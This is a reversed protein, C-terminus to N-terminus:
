YFIHKSQLNTQLNNPDFGNRVRKRSSKREQHSHLDRQEIGYIGGIKPEQLAKIKKLSKKQNRRWDMPNTVVITRQPTKVVRKRPRTSQNGRVSHERSKSAYNSKAREKEREVPAKTEVQKESKMNLDGTPTIKIEVKEETEFNQISRLSKQVSHSEKDNLNNKSWASIARQKLQIKKNVYKKELDCHHKKDHHHPVVGPKLILFKNDKKSSFHNSFKKKMNSENWQQKKAKRNKLQQENDYDFKSYLKRLRNIEDDYAQKKHTSRERQEQERRQKLQLTKDVRKFIMKNEYEVQDLGRPWIKKPAAETEMEEPNPRFENKISEQPVDKPKDSIFREIEEFIINSKAPDKNGLHGDQEKQVEMERRSKQIVELKHKFQNNENELRLKENELEVRRMREETERMQKKMEEEKAKQKLKEREKKQKKEFEQKMKEKEMELKKKLEEEFKQKMKEEKERQKKLLDEKEKRLKEIKDKVAQEKLKRKREEEESLKNRLKVLEKKKERKNEDKKAQNLEERKRQEELEKQKEVERLKALEEEKEKEKEKKRQEILEKLKGNRAMERIRRKREDEESVRDEQITHKAMVIEDDKKREKKMKEPALKERLYKDMEAKMKEMKATLNEASEFMSVEVYRNPLGDHKGKSKKGSKEKRKNKLRARLSRQVLPVEDESQGGSEAENEM